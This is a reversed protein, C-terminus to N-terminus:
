EGGDRDSVKVWRYVYALWDLKHCAAEPTPGTAILRRVGPYRVQCLRCEASRMWRPPAPQLPLAFSTPGPTNDNLFMDSM